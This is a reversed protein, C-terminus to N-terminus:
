WDDTADATEDKGGLMSFLVDKIKSRPDEKIDTPVAEAQGLMWELEPETLKMGRLEIPGVIQKVMNGNRYIFLTPLNADPWNPICTTSISKLIKTAPYKRAISALYQNILSCLPIGSKYLHLVVWVDEGANNVEQVYDQASIERVQGYKAKDTLEKLEAIRKRRYELLIREDEEDELEDLQDLTKAELEKATSGTKENITEEIMDIIRDEEVEKEKEREALIGHKRLIDNWETDQNPDQM